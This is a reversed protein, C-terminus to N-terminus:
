KAAELSTVKASLEQVAKVLVSILQGEAIGKLDSPEKFNDFDIASEETAGINVGGDQYVGFDVGLSKLTAGLEQAIFGAHYRNYKVEEVTEEKTEPDIKVYKRDKWRYFVPHLSDIFDLGVPIDVIDRKLRLDSDATYNYGHLTDTSSRGMRIYSSGLATAGSGFASAYTYQGNVDASAGFVSNNAGTTNNQL